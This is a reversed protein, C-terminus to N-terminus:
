ADPNKRLGCADAPPEADRNVLLSEIRWEGDAERRWISLAHGADMACRSPEVLIMFRSLRYVADGATRFRLLTEEVDIRSNPPFGYGELHRPKLAVWGSVAEHIGARGRLMQGTNAAYIGDETFLGALTDADGREYADLWKGWVNTIAAAADAPVAFSREAEFASPPSDATAVSAAALLALVFIIPAPEVARKVMRHFM